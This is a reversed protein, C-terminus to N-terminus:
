VVYGEKEQEVSVIEFIEDFEVELASVIKRAVPPSPNRTGACVHLITSDGVGAARALGRRSLGRKIILANFETLNKVNITM